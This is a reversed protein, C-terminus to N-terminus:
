ENEHGSSKSSGNELLLDRHIKHLISEVKGSAWLANCKSVPSTDKKGKATEGLYATLKGEMIGSWMIKECLYAITGMAVASCGM